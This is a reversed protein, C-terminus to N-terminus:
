LFSQSRMCFSELTLQSISFRSFLYSHGPMGPWRIIINAEILMGAGIQVAQGCRPDQSLIPPSIIHIMLMQLDDIAKGSGQFDALIPPTDQSPLIRLKPGLVLGQM